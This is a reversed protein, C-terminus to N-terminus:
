VESEKLAYVTVIDLCTVPIMLNRFITREIIKKISRCVINNYYLCLAHCLYQMSHYEWCHEIKLIRFGTSELLKCITKRSFYNLHYPPDYLRWSKGQIRSILSSIDPTSLALLGGSRLVRNIEKLALVPSPIHEIVDWMVVVDFSSEAFSAEEISGKIVNLGLQERAYKAAYDSLEVGSVDFCDKAKGLFYGFACGIELLKRSGARLANLKRVRKLAAQEVAEKEVAYDGYGGANEDAFYSKSYLKDFFGKEPSFPGFVLRCRCCEFFQYNKKTFLYKNSRNGCVRCVIQASNKM